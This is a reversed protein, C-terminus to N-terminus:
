QLSNSVLCTLMNTFVDKIFRHLGYQKKNKSTCCQSLLIAECGDIQEPTDTTLLSQM